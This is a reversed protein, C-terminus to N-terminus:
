RRRSGQGAEPVAEMTRADVEPVFNLVRRLREISFLGDFEHGPREYHSLDTQAVRDGYLRRLTEATSMPTRALPAVLNMRRVGPEHERTLALRFGTLVDDVAISGLEAIPVTYSDVMNLDVPQADEELVVGIRFLTCDLDPTQRAFYHAVEEMLWKSLGYADTAACPVDDAIPWSSPLYDADLCGIAAISSALIFRRCGADILHRLLRRTGSVNVALGDEESCGGVVSGLHVAADIQFRDLAALDRPSAFSGRLTATQGNKAARSFTIVEFEPTLLQALRSGIYGSSGTVLVTRPSAM